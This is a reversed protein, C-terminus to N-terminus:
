GQSNSWPRVRGTLIEYPLDNEYKLERRIYDNIATTYTGYIAINYVQIMTMNRGPRMM